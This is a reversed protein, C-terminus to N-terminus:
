TPMGSSSRALTDIVEELTLLKLPNAQEQWRLTWGAPQEDITITLNPTDTSASTKQWGCRQLAHQTCIYAASQSNGQLQFLGCRQTPLTTPQFSFSDINFAAYPSNFNKELLGSLVAGEPSYQKVTGQGLIWLADPLWLASHLDHTSFLILKGTTHAIQRLLAVVENKTPFDLFATPEDLLIIPTEQALASALWARQLEGDSLTALTRTWFPELHVLALAKAIAAHDHPQLHRFWGLHPFRALQMFEWVQLKPNVSPKAACFALLRARQQHSLQALPYGCLEVSGQLPPITGALTRLLTTKGIGNRGVIAVLCGHGQDLQCHALLTRKPRYGAALDNTKLSASNGQAPNNM